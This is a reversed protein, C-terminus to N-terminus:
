RNQAFDLPNKGPNEGILSFEHTIGPNGQNGPDGSLRINICSGLKRTTMRVQQRACQSFNKYPNCSFKGHHTTFNCNSITFNCTSRISKSNMSLSSHATTFKCFIKYILVVFYITFKRLYKECHMCYHRCGCLLCCITYICTGTTHSRVCCHLPNAYLAM